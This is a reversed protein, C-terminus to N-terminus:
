RVCRVLYHGGSGDSFDGSGSVSGGNWIFYSYNQVTYPTSTWTYGGCSPVGKTSYAATDAIKPLKWDSYGGERLGTCYSNASSFSRSSGCGSYMLVSDKTVNATEMKTYDVVQTTKVTSVGDEYDWYSDAKALNSPCYTNGFSDSGCSFINNNRRTLFTEKGIEVMIMDQLTEKIDNSPVMTFDFATTPTKKLESGTPNAYCGLALLLVFLIKM